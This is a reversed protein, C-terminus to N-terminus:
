ICGCGNNCGFGNASTYPSCTIYAPQPFPRVANIINQTQSLNGLQLQAAQLQDRLEQMVNATMLARTAEAEAHIATTIECTNKYNEARVADNANSENQQGGLQNLFNEINQVRQNLGNFDNSTVYEIKNEQPNVLKYTKLEALGNMSLQKTYIEGDQINVFVSMSGDLAIRAAKAEELCTVPVASIFSQMQQPQEVQGFMNPVQPNIARQMQQVQQMRNYGYNPNTMPNNMPNMYNDPYM